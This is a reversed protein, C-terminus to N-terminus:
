LEKVQVEVRFHKELENVLRENIQCPDNPFALEYQQGNTDLRIMFQDRGRPNYVRDYLEKLRFKDRDTSGSRRFTIYLQRADDRIPHPIAPQEKPILNRYKGNQSSSSQVNSPVSQQVAMKVETIPLSAVPENSIVESKEAECEPSDPKEAGNSSPADYGNGNPERLVSVDKKPQINVYGNQNGNSSIAHDPAAHAHSGNTVMKVPESESNVTPPNIFPSAEYFGPPPGDLYPPPEDPYPTAEVTTTDYRNPEYISDGNAGVDMGNVTPMATSSFETQVPENKAIAKEVQSHITDALLTTQNERSQGKGKVMIVEDAVLKDKYEEYTRPFIVVEFQGQMDELQLFAMPDGKKTFITRISSIM